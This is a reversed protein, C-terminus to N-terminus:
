PNRLISDQLWWCELWSVLQQWSALNHTNTKEVSYYELFSLPGFRADMKTEDLNQLHLEMMEVRPLREDPVFVRAHRLLDANSPQEILLPDTGFLEFGRDPNRVTCGKPLPLIGSGFIYLPVRNSLEETKCFTELPMKGAVSFVYGLSPTPRFIRPRFSRLIEVSCLRDAAAVDGRLLRVLCSPAASELRTVQQPKCVKIPSSYCANFEYQTLHFYKTKSYDVAILEAEPKVQYSLGQRITGPLPFPQFVTFLNDTHLVPFTLLLVLTGPKRTDEFVSVDALKYIANADVSSDSHVQRLIELATDRPLFFPDLKGVKAFQFAQKLSSVQIVLLELASQLNNVGMVATSTTALNWSLTGLADLLQDTNKDMKEIDESLDTLMQAQLRMKSIDSEMLDHTFNFISVQQKLLLRLSNTNDKITRMKKDLETMDDQTSTGFLLKFSMGIPYISRRNRRSTQFVTDYIEDLMTNLHRVGTQLSMKQYLMWNSMTGNTEGAEQFARFFKDLHTQYTHVAEDFMTLKIPIEVKWTEPTALIEGKEVFFIGTLLLLRRM